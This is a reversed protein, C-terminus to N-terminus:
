LAEPEQLPKGRLDSRMLSRAAEIEDPRFSVWNLRPYHCHPCENRMAKDTTDANWGCRLCYHVTRTDSM